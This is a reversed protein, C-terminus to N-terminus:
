FSIYFYAWLYWSWFHQLILYCLLLIPNTCVIPEVDMPDSTIRRTCDIILFLKRLFLCHAHTNIQSRYGQSISILTQVLPNCLIYPILSIIPWRNHINLEDKGGTTQILALFHKINNTNTQTFHHGVCIINHQKNIKTKHVRYDCTRSNYISPCFFVNRM